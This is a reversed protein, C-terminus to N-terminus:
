SDSLMLRVTYDGYQVDMQSAPWPATCHPGDYHLDRALPQETGNVEFPGEWALSLTEGRATKVQAGREQWDVCGQVRERFADFSGDVAERGMVCVWAQTGGEPASAARLERYADAGSQVQHLPASCGLAVYAQGKRAFAWHEDIESADFEYAPWYAHTYNMVQGPVLDYLALLTEKWQAVRPLVRNGAWYNPRRADSESACAPDNVFVAAEPGLTAQWIHQDSGREGSHHDQASCLMYDLTRYTVKDVDPHHERHWMEDDLDVAISAIMTPLEYNSLALAVLGAIHPNWVGMGWLLRTIGATPELHASKIAAAQAHAHPSGFVGKFSNVALTFFLKDMLIAAREQLEENQALDALHALALVIREFGAPSDWEDFGLTGRQEIWAEALEEGRARHWGGNQGSHAFTQTPYAQGALIECVHFLIANSEATRKLVDLGAPDPDRWYTYNLASDELAQAIEPTYVQRNLYRQALGLLGVLNEVSGAQQRYVQSLASQVVDTDIAAWRGLAAKAIEAYLNGTHQTSAALAERRRDPYTGYYANSYPRELVYFPLRKQHRVGFREIVHSPPLLAVHHPGHQLTLHGAGIRASSGPETFAQGYVSIMGSGDRVWRGVQDTEELQDDWHLIVDAGHISVLHELHAHEYVRELKQRRYVNEYPVPLEVSIETAADAQIRLSMGYPSARLAITEFRVLVENRGEALTCAFSHQPRGAGSLPKGHLRARNLWLDAPGNTSLALTVEQAGSVVLQAYAWTRLAYCTHYTASLDLDHDELCRDYRWELEKGAVQFTGREIPPEHIELARPRPPQVNEPQECAAPAPTALPGAVLWNHIYGSQLPYQLYYETM